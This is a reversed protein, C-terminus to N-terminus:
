EGRSSTRSPVQVGGGTFGASQRQRDGVARVQAKVPRERDRVHGFRVERGCDQEARQRNM